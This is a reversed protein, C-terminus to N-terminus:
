RVGAKGRSHYERIAEEKFTKDARRTEILGANASITLLALLLLGQVVDRATSSFGMAIFGNSLMKMSFTGIIVAISINCYRSLFMAMFVGMFGDMMVNMSSMTTVNRLEGMSSLHLVAGVGLFLSGFLFSLFKIKDSDLGVSNAIAQNNGVASLNYGFATKNLLIYFILFMVALLIYIYPERALITMSSPLNAGNPFVTYPAAEWIMLTGITLVMSPVRILRYLVGTVAGLALTILICFLLVGFVGTGTLRALNGGIIGAFTIMAGASFNIMGVNMNLMLGFCIMMPVISQRITTTFVRVTATRGETMVAFILFIGAPIILSFIINKILRKYDFKKM